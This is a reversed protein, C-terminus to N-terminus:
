VFFVKVSLAPIALEGTLTIRVRSEDVKLCTEPVPKWEGTEAVFSIRTSGGLLDKALVLELGDVPDFSFNILTMAWGGSKRPHVSVWTDATREVFAPLPGGACAELISRLQDKRFGSLSAPESGLPFNLLVMRAHGPKHYAIVGPESAGAEFNHVQSHITVHQRDPLEWRVLDGAGVFRGLNIRSGDPLQEFSPTARYEAPKAGIWKDLGFRVLAKAAPGDILIVNQDNAFIKPLQVALPGVFPSTLVKIRGSGFTMPLGLRILRTMAGAWDPRDEMAAYRAFDEHYLFEVGALDRPQIDLGAIGDFAHRNERLTREADAWRQPTAAFDGFGLVSINSLGLAANVRVHFDFAMRSSKYFENWPGGADVEAYGYSGPGAQHMALLTEALGFILEVRNHDGYWGQGPRVLPPYDSGALAELLPRVRRGGSAATGSFTMMLGVHMGPDSEHVSREVLRAVEELSERKLDYWAQAVPDKEPDSRGLAALIEERGITRGLRESMARLHLPCFCYIPYYGPASRLDAEPHHEYRFDDDLLLRRVGTSGLQRFMERVYDRYGADLPCPIGDWERGRHDTLRQWGPWGYAMVTHGFTMTINISGDMGEKRSAECRRRILGAREALRERPLFNPETSFGTSFFMVEDIGAGRCFALVKEWACEEAYMTGFVRLVLRVKEM